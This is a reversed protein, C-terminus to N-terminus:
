LLNNIVVTCKNFNKVLKVTKNYAIPSLWLLGFFWIIIIITLKICVKEEPKSEETKAEEKKAQEEFKEVLAKVKEGSAAKVKKVAKGEAKKPKPPEKSTGQGSDSQIEIVIDSSSNSSDTPEVSLEKKKVTTEEKEKEKTKPEVKTKGKVPEPSKEEEKKEPPVDASDESRDPRPSSNIPTARDRDRILSRGRNKKANRPHNIMTCGLKRYFDEFNLLFKKYAQKVSNYTGHNHPYGLRISVSRWKNQNTVRNYGGLKHVIRFLRYMDIDRNLIMPNKNLPTGRDDMFKYLQAVFHDKEERPEDDSSDTYNEDTDSDPIQLDFLPGREWHAPLEDNDLYKIAKEMAEALATNEIRNGMERSFELIEKKPVTYYRGDKFSRVLFEERVNIRVNTQASPM